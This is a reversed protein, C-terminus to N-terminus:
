EKSSIPGCAAAFAALTMESVSGLEIGPAPLAVAIKEDGGPATLRHLTWSDAPPGGPVATLAFDQGRPEVIAGAFAPVMGLGLAKGVAEKITWVSSLWDALRADPLERLWVVEVETFLREALRRPDPGTARAPEIDVGVSASRCDAVVVVRGTHAINVQLAPLDALQPKGGESVTVLVQGPNQGSAEAAILRVAARGLAHQARADLDPM